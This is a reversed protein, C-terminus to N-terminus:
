NGQHLCPLHMLRWPPHKPFPIKVADCIKSIIKPNNEPLYIEDM